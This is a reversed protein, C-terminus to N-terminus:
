ITDVPINISECRNILIEIWEEFAYVFQVSAEAQRKEYLSTGFHRKGGGRGNNIVADLGGRAATRGTGAGSPIVEAVFEQKYGNPELHPLGRDRNPDITHTTVV